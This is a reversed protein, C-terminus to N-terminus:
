LDMGTLQIGTKETTLGTLTNDPTIRNYMSIMMTNDQVHILIERAEVAESAEEESAETEESAVEESAETVESAETAAVIEMIIVIVVVIIMGVEDTEEM